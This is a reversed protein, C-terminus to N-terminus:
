ETFSFAQRDGGVALPTGLFKTKPPHPKEFFWNLVSSLSFPSRPTNPGGGLWPNQLCSYNPVLCKM